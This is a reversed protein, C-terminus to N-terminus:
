ATQGAASLGGGTEAALHVRNKGGRKASYLAEDALRLVVEESMGQQPTVSAIGITVTIVGSVESTVHPLGLDEVAQRVREALAIADSRSTGPMIAAFEEGGYRAITDGARRLVQRVAQAVARLAEDGQPHGYHDNYRKFDDVDLVMLSLPQGTRQLLAWASRLQEDFSRRNRLGTLADEFSLRRLAQAQDAIQELLADFERALKGIEDNRPNNLRRGYDGSNQLEFAHRALDAIPNFVMRRLLLGAAALTLMFLAVTALLTYKLLERGQMFVARSLNVRLALTSLGAMDPLVALLQLEAPTLPRIRPTGDTPLELAGRLPETLRALDSLPALDLDLETQDRLRQIYGQDLMRAAIMVGRVPLQELSDRVPHAAIVMLGRGTDLIGNIGESHGLAALATSRLEGALTTGAAQDVDAGIKLGAWVITGDERLYALLDVSAAVFSAYGLNAEVYEPTPEQVFRYSDDWVAWERAYIGLHESERELAQRVRQVEAAARANEWAVVRPATYTLVVLSLVVVSAVLLLALALLFRRQISM